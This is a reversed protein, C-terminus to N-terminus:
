RRLHFDAPTTIAPQRVGIDNERLLEADVEIRASNQAEQPPLLVTVSFLPNDAYAGKLKEALATYAERTTMGSETSRTVYEAARWGWEYTIEVEISRELLEGATTYLLEESDYGTPRFLGVKQINDLLLGPLHAEVYLDDSAGNRRWGDMIYRYATRADKANLVASQVDTASYNLSDGYTYTTAPSNTLTENPYLTVIGYGSARDAQLDSTLAGYVPRPVFPNESFGMTREVNARNENYTADRHGEGQLRSAGGSATNHEHVTLYRGGPGLMERLTDLTTGVTIAPKSAEVQETSIDTELHSTLRSLNAASQADSVITPQAAGTSAELVKEWLYNKSCDSSEIDEIARFAEDFDNAYASEAAVFLRFMNRSGASQAALIDGGQPDSMIYGRVKDILAITTKNALGSGMEGSLSGSAYLTEMITWTSGLVNPLERENTKEIGDLLADTLWMAYTGASESQEVQGRLEAIYANTNERRAVQGQILSGDTAQLLRVAGEIADGMTSLDIPGPVREPAFNLSPKSEVLTPM